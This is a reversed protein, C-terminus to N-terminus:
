VIYITKYVGVFSAVLAILLAGLMMVKALRQDRYTNQFPLLLLILFPFLYRAQVGEVMNQGVPTFYLYLALNILFFTAVFTGVMLIGEIWAHAKARAVQAKDVIGLSLIIGMFTLFTYGSAIRATDWIYNTFAVEYFKNWYGGPVVGFYTRFVAAIFEPPNSLIYQLQLDNSSEPGGNTGVYGTLKLWILAAAVAMMVSLGVKAIISWKQNEKNLFLLGIVPLLAIYTPKVLGMCVMLIGIVVTQKNDLPRRSAALHLVYAIFLAIVSFTVADASLAAAQIISTALLSVALVIWKGRPILRIAMFVAMIYFVLGFLRALLFSGYVPLGLMRGTANGVIQPIYTVPPYVASGNFSMYVRDDRDTRAGGDQWIEWASSPNAQAEETEFGYRWLLEAAGRNVYGGVSGAREGQENVAFLKGDTLQEVRFFHQYEDSNWGPPIMFVALLGFVSTISLFIYEPKKLLRLLSKRRRSRKLM